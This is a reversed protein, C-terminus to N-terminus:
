WEGCLWRVWHKMLRVEDVTAGHLNEAV